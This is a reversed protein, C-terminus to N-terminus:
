WSAPEGRDLHDCYQILLAVGLSIPGFMSQTITLARSAETWYGRKRIFRDKHISYSWVSCALWMILVCILPFPSNTKKEDNM